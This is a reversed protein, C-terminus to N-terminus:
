NQRTASAVVKAKWRCGRFGSSDGVLSGMVGAEGSVFRMALM